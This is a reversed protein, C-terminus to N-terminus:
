FKHRVKTKSLDEIPRAEAPIAQGRRMLKTGGALCAKVVEGDEVRVYTAAADTEFDLFRLKAGAKRAQVFYDIRGDAFHIAAGVTDDSPSLLLPEMRSIPCEVGPSTPYLVYLFSAPGSQEREFVATPLTRMTYGSKLIWGQVVPEEQGSVVRVRLGDDAPPIIALNGADRNATRASKTREDVVVEDADLHFMSEYRHPKGDAPNLFDTVIWYEPRAFFIHRTHAVKVENQPGYGSTYAGSAYDFSDGAAWGNPLPKSVVYEERPKGRRHQDLGDVMITNHGRTSLVYRRWESSDYPYNGADVLHYRGHAYVVISLADEHQHGYGFPGADMLLYLDDKEWGSRMILQGAFPLAISGVTPKEGRQGQTAVWEYDRREPYFKLAQELSPKINTRGADNLGPLTGDPMSARLDYDYMKRVKAIYDDPVPADNLHAIEWALVFNSLSVQHYGTTLEIQAGDPYVQRDLEVYLRDAATRHWESAEKFEPFMVGVHMLGNAEMALWNGGTPWRMLHRAHEVFSKLMVIVAEHSFSPSTLFRHYIEMWTQGARIGTEITRWTYSSNGSSHRPVPCKKAWDLLQYVFEQAYKEEGTAWYARGLSVWAPHRNLQWPWERYDIPNLNWDIEGEFKHWVGVSLMERSLIRDADATDVGEPRSDHRPRARWDWKWAPKERRRLYEALEHKAAELTASDVAAKVKELGPRELDLLNFLEADSIGPGEVNILELDAIHLVVEPDPECNWGEASFMISDIKDFGAPARSRSLENLPVVFEKWGTWDLCIRLSFYDPGESEPTESGLVLMLDDGTAKNSHLAFKLGSSGSWDHPIRETQVRAHKGQDWKGAPMGKYTLGPDAGLGEWGSLDGLDTLPTSGGADSRLHLILLALTCIVLLKM